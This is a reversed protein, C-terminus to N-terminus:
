EENLAEDLEIGLLIYDIMNKTHWDKFEQQISGKIYSGKGTDRNIMYLNVDGNKETIARIKGYSNAPESTTGRVWEPSWWYPVNRKSLYDPDRTPRSIVTKKAM